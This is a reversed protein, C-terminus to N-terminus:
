VTYKKIIDEAKAKYIIHGGFLKKCKDGLQGLELLGLLSVEVPDKVGNAFNYSSRPGMKFSSFVQEGNKGHILIIDGYNVMDLNHLASELAQLKNSKQAHELVEGFAKNNVFKAGFSPNVSNISLSNM